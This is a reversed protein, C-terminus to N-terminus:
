GEMRMRFLALDEPTDIGSSKQDTTMCIIRMGNELARLQELKERKELEGQPLSCFADLSGKTFGYLGWHAWFEKGEGNHDRDFPIPSRSFYLAENKRNLVVKVTNPNNGCEITAHSVCTLLSNDDLKKMNEAFSWLVGAPVCPEDGQLNVIYRYDYSAAVEAVRDTGSVHSGSTMCAVGGHAIVTDYIRSDDTAVCVTDFVQAAKASNYAWMILPLDKVIALPKAQLRTSAYRAPIVCLIGNPTM